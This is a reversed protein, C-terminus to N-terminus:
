CFSSFSYVSPHYKTNEANSKHGCWHQLNKGEENKETIENKWSQVTIDRYYSYFSYFFPFCSLKVENFLVSICFPTGSINQENTRHLHIHSTFVKINFIICFKVVCCSIKHQTFSQIEETRWQRHIIWRKKITVTSLEKHNDFWHFYPFLHPFGLKCNVPIQTMETCCQFHSSIYKSKKTSHNLIHIIYYLIRHM